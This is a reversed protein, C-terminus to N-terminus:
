YRRGEKGELRKAFEHGCVGCFRAYPSTIKAGCGPCAELMREGDNTCFHESSHLPVARYCHPCLRFFLGEQNESV